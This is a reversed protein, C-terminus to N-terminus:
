GDGFAGVVISKNYLELCHSGNNALEGLSLVGFTPPLGAAQMVASLAKLERDFREGLFLVRSICDVLLTGQPRAGHDQLARQAAHMAAAVLADEHGQLVHVTTQPPVEGVCVLADGDWVIPDRVLLSGDPREMGFPFGKAHDFFNEPTLAAGTLPEVSQRYVEHAPRYNLRQVRTGQAHTVIFPGAVPTWGHDVGLGMRRKLPLVVAGGQRMGQPTFLCPRRQFSLSGAGGGAVSVGGGLHDFLAETFAGLRSALGDFLVVLSVPDPPLARSLADFSQAPDDLGDIWRGQLPEAIAVTILGQPDHRDGHIVEPFVGGWVPLPAARLVPDILGAPWPVGDGALLLVAGAGAAHAQQLRQTLLAPLDAAPDLRDFEAHLVKM